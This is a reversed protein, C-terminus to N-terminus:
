VNQFATCDQEAVLKNTYVRVLYIALFSVVLLLIVIIIVIFSRWFSECRSVELNEWIINSPTDAGHVRIVHGMYRNKKFFRKHRQTKKVAKVKDKTHNFTIFAGLKPLDAM